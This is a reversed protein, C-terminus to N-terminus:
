AGMNKSPLGSAGYAAELRPWIWIAIPLGHTPLILFAPAVEYLVTNAM